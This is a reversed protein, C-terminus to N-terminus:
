FFNESGENDAEKFLKWVSGDYIDTMINDYSSRNAWHRLSKEFGPRLFMSALQQNIGSFPYILNPRIITQKASIIQSLPTNCLRSKRLSLNPFEIHQCNMITPNGEQQFNTVEQNQYLKHCKPCPVFNHFQDSLGLMKRALYLSNPFADFDNGAVECLVLKMFKILAETATETVNFRTQFNM